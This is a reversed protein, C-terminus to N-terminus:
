VATAHNTALQDCYILNTNQENSYVYLAAQYVSPETLLQYTTHKSDQKM